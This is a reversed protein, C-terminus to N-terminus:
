LLDYQKLRKDLTRLADINLDMLKDMPLDSLPHEGGQITVTSNIDVPCEESPNAITDDKNQGSQEETTTPGYISKHFLFNRRDHVMREPVTCFLM